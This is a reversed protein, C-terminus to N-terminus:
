EKSRLSEIKEIAWSVLDADPEDTKLMTRLIELSETDGQWAVIRIARERVSPKESGLAKRVDPLVAPGAQVLIWETRDAMQSDSSGLAEVAPQADAGIRDWLKFGAVMSDFQTFGEGPEFALEELAQTAGPGELMSLAQLMKMQSRFRGSIEDIEPQTLEPKGRRAYDEGLKLSAKMELRMQVPIAKVAIEPQHRALALAAAGRVAATENSLLPLLAATPVDGPARSLAMLAEQLVRPDKDQLLALLMSAPAHLIGLAWAANARVDQHESQLAEAFVSLPPQPRATVLALAAARSVNDDADLMWGAFKEQLPFGRYRSLALIAKARSPNQGSSADVGLEHIKREVPRGVADAGLRPYDVNIGDVGAAVAAKMAALDLQHENASFNAVVAKGEHHYAKVQEATVGPQVWATGTGADTAAPYLQKVDSWEGNFQVRELMGERQLLELVDAGMGKTKMDVVLRIDMKRALRLADEFRAVRMRAFRDGMWGGFDRLELDGSYTTEAEGIGDTLRELVGDHNLVLEGDLTRRVDLEVVNCGLLAAQELSELTNEPVDQNATRHCLLQVGGPQLARAKSVSAFTMVLLVVCVRKM